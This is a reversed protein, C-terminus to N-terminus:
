PPQRPELWIRHQAFDTVVVFRRLIRVGLNLDGANDMADVAAEVDNFTSGAVELSALRLVQRDTQGGIGGGSRTGIIRGPTLLANREAFAKGILVDSGNGLDVDAAAAIGEVRVPISEIGAHDTLALAVGGVPAARSVVQLSGGDIDIRLRAADFLERGLIFKVQSGVLRRSIDRLDVVAITLDKMTVSAARVSVRAFQAQQQGGSGRATAQGSVKVDLERAFAPDMLSSEAASDLLAQTRRGNVEIPLFLRNARVTLAVAAGDTASAAIGHFALILAALARASLTM